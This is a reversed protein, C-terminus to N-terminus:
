PLQNINFPYYFLMNLNKKKFISDRFSKLLDTLTFNRILRLEKEKVNIKDIKIRSWLKNQRMLQSKKHVFNINM